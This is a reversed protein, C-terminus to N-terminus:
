VVPISEPLVLFGEQLAAQRLRRDLSIFLRNHPRVGTWLYAAALQFSDAARLPYRHVLGAALRRVEMSPQVETWRQSLSQLTIVQGEQAPDLRGERRLRAVVAHCEVLTGWWVVIQRDEKALDKVVETQPQELCLPVVASADWFRM